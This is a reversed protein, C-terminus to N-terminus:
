LDVAHALATPDRKAAEEAGLTKRKGGSNMTTEYCRWWVANCMVIATSIANRRKCLDIAQLCSSMACRAVLSIFKARLKPSLPADDLIPRADKLGLGRM